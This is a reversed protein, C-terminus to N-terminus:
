INGAFNGDLYLHFPTHVNHSIFIPPLCYEDNSTATTNLFSQYGTNIYLLCQLTSLVCFIFVCLPSCNTFPLRTFSNFSQLNITQTGINLSITRHFKISTFYHGNTKTIQQQRWMSSLLVRTFPINTARTAWHRNIADCKQADIKNNNDIRTNNKEEQKLYFPYGFLILPPFLLLIENM